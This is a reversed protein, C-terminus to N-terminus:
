TIDMDSALPYHRLLCFLEREKIKMESAKVTTTNEHDYGLLHLLGHILLFELEDMFNIEEQKADRLATEVSIIIDGLLHPNVASFEGDNMAFSIVNTPRDRDLYTRNIEQIGKDDLLLVSVESEPCNLQKLLCNLSRRLRKLDVKYKKQRNEISVTTMLAGNGNQSIM